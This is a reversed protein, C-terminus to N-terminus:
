FSSTSSPPYEHPPLFKADESDSESEREIEYSYELEFPNEAQNEIDSEDALETRYINKTFHPADEKHDDGWPYVFKPM